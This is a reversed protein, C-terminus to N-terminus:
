ERMGRDAQKRFIINLENCALGGQLLGLNLLPTLMKTRTISRLLALSNKTIGPRFLYTIYKSQTIINNYHKSHM